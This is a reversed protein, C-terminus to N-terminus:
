VEEDTQGSEDREFIDLVDGRRCAFDETGSGRRHDLQLFRRLLFPFTNKYLAKVIQLVRKQFLPELLELLNASDRHELKQLLLLLQLHNQLVAKQTLLHETEISIRVIQLPEVGSEEILVILTKCIFDNSMLYQALALNDFVIIFM